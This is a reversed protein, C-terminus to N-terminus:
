ADLATPSQCEIRSVFSMSQWVSRVKALKARSVEVSQGGSCQRLCILWYFLWEGSPLASTFAGILLSLVVACTLFQGIMNDINCRAM